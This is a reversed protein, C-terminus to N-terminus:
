DADLIFNKNFDLQVLLPAFVLAQKLQEFAM